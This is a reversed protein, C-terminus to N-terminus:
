RCSSRIRSKPELALIPHSSYIFPLSTKGLNVFTYDLLIQNLGSVAATRTLMVPMGHPHSIRTVLQGGLRYGEWPVDWLMGHDAGFRGEAKGVTPFCEDGGSIDHQLYARGRLRRRPDRFFFNRRSRRSCLRRLKGGCALDIELMLDGATVLWKKGLHKISM